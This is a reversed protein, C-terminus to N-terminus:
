SKKPQEINRYFELKRKLEDVSKWCVEQSCGLAEYRALEERLTVDYEDISMSQKDYAFLAKERLSNYIEAMWPPMELCDGYEETLEQLMLVEEKTLQLNFVTDEM